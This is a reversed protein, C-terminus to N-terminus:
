CDQFKIGYSFALSCILCLKHLFAMELSCEVALIHM